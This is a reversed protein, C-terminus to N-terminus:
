CSLFSCKVLFYQILLFPGICIYILLQLQFCALYPFYSIIGRSEIHDEDLNLSKYKLYYWSLSFLGYFTLFYKCIVSTILSKYVSNIFFEQLEFVFLCGLKFIPLPYSCVPTWLEFPWYACSFISLMM